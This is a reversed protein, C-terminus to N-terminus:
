HRLHNRRPTQLPDLWFPPLFEPLGDAAIVVKWEGQHIVRHHFGCLLVGNNLDTRGGQSWHEIHHGETWKPPRDCGPFACGGDRLVLARRAAGTFLRREKGLNIPVSPSGLVAPIIGASCALRRVADPLLRAGNDLMGAGTKGALADFDITVVVKATDGGDEPLDNTALALRCVDHLADARRQTATRTDEQGAPACLPDLAAKITAAAEAGFVGTLRERGTGDGFASWSLARDRAAIKEANELDRRLKEEALDPAIRELIHDAARRLSSPELGSCQHGLLVAEAEAQLHAGQERLDTVAHSIILAQQENISGAALSAATAQCVTELASALSIMRRAHGATICLKGSLWATLSSAGERRALDRASAEHVLALRQAALSQEASWVRGIDTSIEADSM